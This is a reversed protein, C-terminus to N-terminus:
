CTPKMRPSGGPQNQILFMLYRFTWVSLYKITSTLLTRIYFTWLNSVIWLTEFIFRIFYVKWIIMQKLHTHFNSKLLVSHIDWYSCSHIATWFYITWFYFQFRTYKLNLVSCNQRIKLKSINFVMINTLKIRHITQVTWFELVSANPKAENWVHTSNQKQSNESNQVFPRNLAGFEDLCFRIKTPLEFVPNQVLHAVVRRDHGFISSCLLEFHVM